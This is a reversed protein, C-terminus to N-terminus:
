SSTFNLSVHQPEILYQVMTQCEEAHLKRTNAHLRCEDRSLRQAYLNCTYGFKLPHGFKSTCACRGVRKM